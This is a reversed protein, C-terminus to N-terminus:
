NISAIDSLIHGKGEKNGLRDGFLRLVALRTYECVEMLAKEDDEDVDLSEYDLQAFEQLHQLIDQAEEDDEFHEYSAGATDMGQTFGECWESFARARNLLPEHDDPLLLKFEFDMRAIQQQSHIYVNFMALAAARTTEDKNNIVLARLYDEGQHSAGACLYGCMIGHLESSSIPLDLVTISDTFAQYAPLHISNNEVSM